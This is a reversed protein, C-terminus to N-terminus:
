LLSLKTKKSNWLFGISILVSWIIYAFYNITFLPFAVEEFEAKTIIPITSLVNISIASYIINALIFGFLANITFDNKIIIQTRLIYYSIVAILIFSPIISYTNFSDKQYFSMNIVSGALILVGTFYVVTKNTSTKSYIYLTLLHQVLLHINFLWGNPTKQVALYTAYLDVFFNQWVIFLILKEFPLLRNIKFLGVIGCLLTFYTQIRIDLPWITEM